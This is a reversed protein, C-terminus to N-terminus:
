PLAFSWQAHGNILGKSLSRPTSGDAALGLVEFTVDQVMLLHSYGIHRKYAVRIDMLYFGPVLDNGVCANLIFEGTKLRGSSLDSSYVTFIAERELTRVTIGFCIDEAEELAEFCLALSLPQKWHVSFSNHAADLMRINKLRLAKVGDMHQEDTIDKTASGSQHCSLYEGIVDDVPGVMKKKGFDLLIANSCLSRILSLNHSVVVVTKGQRSIGEMKGVCKKQFDIDGVALVEDVLLIETELHAAVSFTLRVYMGSSYFKIPTDIFREIEAFAVIEDFKKDIERKTMGLIAGNLYINERGTLEPHFGAGVELLSGIRGTVEAKGFTPETIRSLIKLLTTKGSGNRGMIGTIDGEQIDLSVDDLAWVYQKPMRHIEDIHGKLLSAINDRLTEYSAGIQGLRYRKSLHEIKIVPSSM